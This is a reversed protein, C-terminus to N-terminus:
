IGLTESVRKKCQSLSPLFNLSHVNSEPPRVWTQGTWDSMWLNGFYVFPNCHLSCLLWGQVLRAMLSRLFHSLKLCTVLVNENVVNNRCKIESLSLTSRRRKRNWASLTLYWGEFCESRGLMIANNQFHTWSLCSIPIFRFSSIIYM